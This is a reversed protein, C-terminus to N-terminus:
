PICTFLVKGYGMIIQSLERKMKSDM